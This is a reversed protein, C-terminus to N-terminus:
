LMLKEIIRAALENNDNTHGHEEELVEIIKVLNRISKKKMVLLTLVEQLEFLSIKEPIVDKVVSPYKETVNDILIQIMQHNVIKDFHDAVLLELQECLKHFSFGELTKLADAFLPRDYSLIRYELPELAANDRIRVLPLLFGYKEAMTERLSRIEPFQSAHEQTLMDTFGTGTEIVLPEALVKQLLLRASQEDNNETIRAKRGDRHLLYDATCCLVECIHYLLDLDPYSSGKEWKSVAQPTVGIRGALQEQTFGAERRAETLREGFYHIEM